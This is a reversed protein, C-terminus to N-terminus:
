RQAPTFDKETFVNAATKYEGIASFDPKVGLWDFMGRAFFERMSVGVLNLEGQPMMAVQGASSAVLYPLNGPGFDGATEIYAATWKGHSRFNQIWTCM